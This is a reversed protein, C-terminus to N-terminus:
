RQPDFSNLFDGVQTITTRLINRLISPNQEQQADFFDDNHDTSATSETFDNAAGTDDLANYYITMSSASRKLGNPNSADGNKDVNETFSVHKEPRQNQRHTFAQGVEGLSNSEIGKMSNGQKYYINHRKFSSAKDAVYNMISDGIHNYLGGRKPGFLNIADFLLNTIFIISAIVVLVSIVILWEKGISQSLLNFPLWSQKGTLQCVLSIICVSLLFGIM